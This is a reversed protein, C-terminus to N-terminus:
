GKGGAKDCKSVTPTFKMHIKAFLQFGIQKKGGNKFAMKLKFLCLFLFNQQWLFNFSRKIEDDDHAPLFPGLKLNSGKLRCHKIHPTKTLNKM